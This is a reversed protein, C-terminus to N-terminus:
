FFTIGGAAAANASGQAGHEHQELTTYASEFKQLWVGSDIPPPTRGGALIQRNGDLREGLREIDGAVLSLIQSVRDQFQLDVLVQVIQAHVGEGEAQLRDATHVLSGAAADFRAVVQYVVAEAEKVVEADRTALGDAANLTSKIAAGVDEVRQRILKGTEGSLTSLKRVEDAVVAFGRGHEGARAAEIAANLALLNTQSAIAAVEGAMRKLEDTFGALGRIETLLGKKTALAAEISAVLALLQERVAAILSTMGGNGDSMGAAASRSTAVAAELKDSIEHFEGALGTIAQETQERSVGIHRQWRPLVADCIGHLSAAYGGLESRTRAAAELSVRQAEALRTSARRQLSLGLVAALVLLLAAVAWVVLGGGGALVGFLAGVVATAMLSVLLEMGPAAAAKSEAIHMPLPLLAQTSAFVRRTM